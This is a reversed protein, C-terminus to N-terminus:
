IGRGPLSPSAQCAQRHRVLMCRLPLQWPRARAAQLRTAALLRLAPMPGAAAVQRCRDATPAARQLSGARAGGVQVDNPGQGSCVVAEVGKAAAVRTDSGPKLALWQLHALHKAADAPMEPRAIGFVDTRRHPAAAESAAREGAGHASDWWRVAMHAALPPSHPCAARSRRLSRRPASAPPPAGPSSRMPPISGRRGAAARLRRWRAGSPPVSHVSCGDNFTQVAGSGRPQTPAELMM